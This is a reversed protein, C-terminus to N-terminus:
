HIDPFKRKSYKIHPSGLICQTWCLIFWLLIQLWNWILFDLSRSFGLTSLYFLGFGGLASDPYLDHQNTCWCICHSSGQLVDSIGVFSIRIVCNYLLVVQLPPLCFLKCVALIISREFFGCVRSYISVNCMNNFRSM